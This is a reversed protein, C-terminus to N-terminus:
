VSRISYPREGPPYEETISYLELFSRIIQVDKEDSKSTQTWMFACPVALAETTLVM